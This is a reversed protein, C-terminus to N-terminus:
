LDLPVRLFRSHRRWSLEPWGSCACPPLRRSCSPEPTPGPCHSKGPWGSSRQPCLPCTAWGPLLLPLWCPDTHSCSTRTHCHKETHAHTLCCPHPAHIQSTQEAVRAEHGHHSALQRGVEQRSGVSQVVSVWRLTERGAPRKESSCGEPGAATLRGRSRKKM